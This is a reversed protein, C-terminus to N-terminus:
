VKSEAAALVIKLELGLMTEAPVPLPHPVMELPHQHMGGDEPVKFPWRQDGCQAGRVPRTGNPKTVPARGAAPSPNSWKRVMDRQGEQTFGLVQVPVTNGSPDCGAGM